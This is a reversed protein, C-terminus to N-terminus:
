IINDPSQAKELDKHKGCYPCTKWQLKQTEGCDSCVDNHFYNKIGSFGEKIIQKEEKTFINDKIWVVILGVLGVIFVGFLAKIILILFM